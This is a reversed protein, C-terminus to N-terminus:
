TKYDVAPGGHQEPERLTIAAAALWGVTDRDRRGSIHGKDEESVTVAHWSSVRAVRVMASGTGSASGREALRDGPLRGRLATARGTLRVERRAPKGSRAAASYGTVTNAANTASTAVAPSVATTSTGSRTAKAPRTASATGRGPLRANLVGSASMDVKCAPGAGQRPPRAARATDRATFAGSPAPPKPAEPAM